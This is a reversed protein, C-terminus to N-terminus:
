IGGVRITSRKIITTDPLPLDKFVGWIPLQRADYKLEVVFQSGDATSDHTDIVLKAADIFPYTPANLSIFRMALDRRETTDLGAIATRTADAAIQQLSHSAGFYIGYAIMGMLLLIFIPSLIAFEVATTASRDDKFATAKGQM